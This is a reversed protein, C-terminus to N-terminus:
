APQYSAIFLTTEQRMDKKTPTIKHFIRHDKECLPILHEDRENGFQNKDYLTHHLQVNERSGCRRCKKEHTRYYMAKRKGWDGSNIYTDYAEHMKKEKVIKKQKVKTAKMIKFHKERHNSYPEVFGNHKRKKRSIFSFSEDEESHNKM